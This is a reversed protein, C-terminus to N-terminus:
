QILDKLITMTGDLLVQTKGNLDVGDIQFPATISQEKIPLLVSTPTFSLKISTGVISIGSGVTLDILIGSSSVYDKKAVFRISWGTPDIVVNAADKLVLSIEADTGQRYTIVGSQYKINPIM